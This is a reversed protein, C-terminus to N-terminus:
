GCSPPGAGLERPSGGVLCGRCRQTIMLEVVDLGPVALAGGTGQQGAAHGPDRDSGGQHVCLGREWPHSAAAQLFAFREAGSSVDGACPGPVCPATRVEGLRPQEGPARPHSQADDHEEGDAGRGERAAVHPDAADAQLGRQGSGGRFM